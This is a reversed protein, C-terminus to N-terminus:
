VNNKKAKVMSTVFMICLTSIYKNMQKVIKDRDTDCLENLLDNMNEMIELEEKLARRSSLPYGSTSLM